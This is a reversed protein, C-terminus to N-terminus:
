APPPLAQPQFDLIVLGRYSGVNDYAVSLQGGQQQALLVMVHVIESLRFGYYRQSGGPSDIQTGNGDWEAVLLRVSTPQESEVQLTFLRLSRADDLNLPRGAVMPGDPGWTLPGAWAHNRAFSDIEAQRQLDITPQLLGSLADQVM